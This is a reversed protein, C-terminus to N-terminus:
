PKCKRRGSWFGLAAAIASTRSKPSILRMCEGIVLGLRFVMSSCRDHHRQYYMIRNAMMLNTLFSSSRYDGGIHVSRAQPVYLIDYGAARTRQFYDVEESYLFFSEDWDGVAERVRGSILLAAGSAWAIKGGNRYLAPHEVIEGIGLKAARTGGLIAESWATLISPERRVSKAIKGTEDYISPVAIGTRQSRLLAAQLIRVSGRALRIDPNLILLDAMASTAASAANIGASYGVNCGTEIVRDVAPHARALTASGDQSENDVVIVEFNDVGDLGAKLSDLLGPLVGASNYSVIIVALMTPQRNRASLRDYSLQQFNRAIDM